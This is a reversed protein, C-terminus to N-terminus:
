AVVANFSKKIIFDIGIQHCPKTFVPKGNADNVTIHEVNVVTITTGGSQYIVHGNDDQILVPLGNQRVTLMDDGAGGDISTTDTGTGDGANVQIVGSGDGGMAEISDDGAGGYQVIRNRGDTGFYIFSNPTDLGVDTQNTDFADPSTSM